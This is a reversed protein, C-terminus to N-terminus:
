KGGFIEKATKVVSQMIEMSAHYMPMTAKVGHTYSITIDSRPFHFLRREAVKRSYNKM